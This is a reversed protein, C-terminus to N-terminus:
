KRVGALVTAASESQKAPLSWDLLAGAWTYGAGFGLLMLRDGENLRGEASAECIALPISAASTNGYKHINLYVKDLSVGLQEAVEEVIRRNAQHAIVLDFGDGALEKAVKTMSHVAARFVERGAMRICHLHREVTDHSTPLASGGAVIIVREAGSGDAGLIFRAPPAAVDAEVVVAGAGDGFLPTTGPDSPHLFPSLVEAGIVLARSAVGTSLMGSVTALSYIFGSCAANLDFAAANTAGLENQVLCATSPFQHDPTCTGVVILDIDSPLYGARDLANRAAETALTSTSQNQSVYRREVIGTRQEIWTPDVGVREGAEANTVVREPVAMGVGRVVFGM